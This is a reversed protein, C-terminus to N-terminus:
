NDKIQVPEKSEKEKQKKLIEKEKKAGKLVQEETWKKADGQWKKFGGHGDKFLGYWKKTVAKFVDEGMGNEVVYLMYNMASHRAQIPAENAIWISWEPGHQVLDDGGGALHVANHFLGAALAVDDLDWAHACIHVVGPVDNEPGWNFFYNNGCVGDCHFSPKDAEGCCRPSWPWSLDFHDATEWKGNMKYRTKGNPPKGIKQEPRTEQFKKYMHSLANTLIKQVGEDTSGKHDPEEGFWKKWLKKDTDTVGKTLQDKVAAMAKKVRGMHDSSCVGPDSEHESKESLGTVATVDSPTNKKQGTAGGASIVAVVGVVGLALAFVLARKNTGNRSNGQTQFELAVEVDSDDANAQVYKAPFSEM